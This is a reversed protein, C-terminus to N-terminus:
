RKAKRKPKRARKPKPALAKCPACECKCMGDGACNSGCQFCHTPPPPIPEEMEAYLRVPGFGTARAKASIPSHSYINVKGGLSGDPGPHYTCRGITVSLLVAPGMIWVRTVGQPEYTSLSLSLDSSAEAPTSEVIM